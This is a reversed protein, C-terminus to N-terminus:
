TYPWRVLTINIQPRPQEERAPAPQLARFYRPLVDLAIASANGLGAPSEAEAQAVELLLRGLSHDVGGASLRAELRNLEGALAAGDLAPPAHRLPAFRYAAMLYRFLAGYRLSFTDLERAEKLLSSATIFQPHKDISLPPRYLALMEAQLADIESALPRVPPPQLRSPETLRRALAVFDRQAQASGLYYLGSDPMTNRGYELSADYFVRVQPLAAEALARVAAPEVGALAEVPPAALQELLVGGMRRWEAEFAAEEKREATPREAMYGAALLDARAHALRQLALLRRGSRLADAARALTTESGEKIQKWIEDTAPHTKVFTSWREIEAALPDRAVEAPSSTVIAAALTLGAAILLPRTVPMGGLM